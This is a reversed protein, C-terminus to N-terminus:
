KKQMNGNLSKLTMNLPGILNRGVDRLTRMKRRTKFQSMSEENKEFPPDSMERKVKTIAPM